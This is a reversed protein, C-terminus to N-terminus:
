AHRLRPEASALLLFALGDALSGVAWVGLPGAFGGVAAVAILWLGLGSVGGAHPCAACAV